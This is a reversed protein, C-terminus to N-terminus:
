TEEKKGEDTKAEEKSDEKKLPTSARPPGGKPPPAVANAGPKPSGYDHERSKAEGEAFFADMDFHVIVQSM